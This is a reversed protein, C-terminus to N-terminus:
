RAPSARVALSRRHELTDTGARTLRSADIRVTYSGGQKELLRLTWGPRPPKREGSTDVALPEPPPGVTGPPDFSQCAVFLVSVLDLAVKSTM